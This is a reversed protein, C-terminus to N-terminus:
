LRYGSASLPRVPLVRERQPKEGDMQKEFVFVILCKTQTPVLAALGSGECRLPIVIHMMNKVCGRRRLLRVCSASRRQRFGTKPLWSIPDSLFREEPKISQKIQMATRLRLAKLEEPDIEIYRNKAYEFGKVIDAKEV